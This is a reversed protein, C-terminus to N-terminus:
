PALRYAAKDLLSDYQGAKRPDKQSLVSYLVFYAADVAEWIHKTEVDYGDEFGADPAISSRM